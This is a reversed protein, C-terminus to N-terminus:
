IKSNKEPKHISYLKASEEAEQENEGRPMLGTCETASAVQELNYFPDESQEFKKKMPSRRKRKITGSLM